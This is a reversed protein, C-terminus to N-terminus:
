LTIRAEGTMTEVPPSNIILIQLTLTITMRAPPVAVALLEGERPRGIYTTGLVVEAM